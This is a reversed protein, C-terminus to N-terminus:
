PSLVERIDPPACPDALLAAVDGPTVLDRESRLWGMSLGADFLSRLTLQMVRGGGWAEADIAFLAPDYRRAGLLYYGGATAPGLTVDVGARLDDAAARAHGDSLGPQDTGVVIVPGGHREAVFEFAAALRDGAHSDVQAFVTAEPPALAAVEERADTPAYAVYADGTRAAWRAARGILVRQLRACGEAGLLPELEPKESAGRPAAAMVLVALREARSDTSGSTRAL